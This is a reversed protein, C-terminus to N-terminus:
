RPARMLALPRGRLQEMMLQVAKAYFRVLDIKNYFPAKDTHLQVLTAHLTKLTADSFERGMNGVYRLAGGDIDQLGLLM